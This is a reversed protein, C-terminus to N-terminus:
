EIVEDARGTITQPLTLGLAEDAFPWTAAANAGFAEFRRRLM